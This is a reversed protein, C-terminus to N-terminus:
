ASARGDLGATLIAKAEEIAEAQELPRGEQRALLMLDEAIVPVVERELTEDEMTMNGGTDNEIESEPSPMNYVQPEAELGHTTEVYGRVRREALYLAWGLCLLFIVVLAVLSGISVSM